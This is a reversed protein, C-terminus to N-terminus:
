QHNEAMRHRRHFSPNHTYTIPSGVVGLLTVCLCNLRFMREIHDSFHVSSHICREPFNSHLQMNPTMSINDVHFYGYVLVRQRLLHKQILRMINRKDSHPHTFTRTGSPLEPWKVHAVDEDCFSKSFPVHFRPWRMCFSDLADGSPCTNMRCDHIQTCSNNCLFAPLCFRVTACQKYLVFLLSRGSITTEHTKNRRFSRHKRNTQRSRHTGNIKPKQEAPVQINAIFYRMAHPIRVPPTPSPMVGITMLSTSKHDAVYASMSFPNESLEFPFLRISQCPITSPEQQKQYIIQRPHMALLSRHMVHANWQSLTREAICESSPDLKDCQTHALACTNRPSGNLYQYSTWHSETNLSKPCM